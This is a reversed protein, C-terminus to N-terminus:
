LERLGYAVVHVSRAPMSEENMLFDYWGNAIGEELSACLYRGDEANRLPRDLDIEIVIRVKTKDSMRQIRKPKDSGINTPSPQTHPM